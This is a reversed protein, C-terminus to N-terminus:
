RDTSEERAPSCSKISIVITARVNVRFTDSVVLIPNAPSKTEASFSSWKWRSPVTTFVVSYLAGPGRSLRRACREVGERAVHSPFRPSEGGSISACRKELPDRCRFRAALRNKGGKPWFLGTKAGEARAAPQTDRAAAGAVQTQTLQAPIRFSPGTRPPSTPCASAKERLIRISLSTITLGFETM